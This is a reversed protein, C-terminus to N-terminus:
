KQKEKQSESKEQENETKLRKDEYPVMTLTRQMSYEEGSIVLMEETLKEIKKEVKLDAEKFELTIKDGENDVSWRGDERKGDETRYFTGDPNFAYIIKVFEGSVKTGSLDMETVQWKKALLVKKDKGCSSLLLLLAIVPIYKLFANM